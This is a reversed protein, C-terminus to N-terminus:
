LGRPMSPTKRTLWAALEVCHCVISVVPSHTALALARRQRTHPAYVLTTTPRRQGTRTLREVARRVVAVRHAFGRAVQVQLEGGFYANGRSQNHSEITAEATDDLSTPFLRPCSKPVRCHPGARLSEVWSSADKRSCHALQLVSCALSREALQRTISTQRPGLGDLGVHIVGFQSKVPTCMQWNRTKPSNTPHKTQLLKLSLIHILVVKDM